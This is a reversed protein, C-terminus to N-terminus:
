QILKNTKQTTIGPRTPRQTRAARNTRTSDAKSGLSDTSSSPLQRAGKSAVASDGPQNSVGTNNATESRFQSMPLIASVNKVNFKTLQSNSTFGYGEMMRDVRQIQIFSDSYIEEKRQDWFLQQTLFKEGAVNVVKVNGDLRWLQKDKFYTASDCDVTAERKFFNDYRDLHLGHPFKWKPEKAEDYVLWLDTTIKYRMVGSDSILTEVDRTTMTAFTEPDIKGKFTREGENGCAPLIVALLATVVILLNHLGHLRKGGSM